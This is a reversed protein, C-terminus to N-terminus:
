KMRLSKGVGLEAGEVTEGAKLADLVAKKDLKPEQPIFYEKPIVSENLVHVSPPNNQVWFRYTGADLNRVGMTEMTNQLSTKLTTERGELRRAYGLLREAEVRAAKAEGQLMVMMKGYNEAKEEIDYKISELTDFVAQDSVEEDSLMSYVKQWDETLKYLSM